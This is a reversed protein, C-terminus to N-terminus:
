FLDSIELHIENGNYFRDTKYYKDQNLAFSFASGASSRGLM